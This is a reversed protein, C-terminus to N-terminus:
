AVLNHSRCPPPRGAYKAFYRLLSTLHWAMHRLSRGSARRADHVVSVAPCVAVAGGQAWGRRCLDIDECYMFFQEDFGGLAAYRERAFLMFMGAVWDVIFAPDGPNYRAAGAGARTRRHILNAFTPFARAHDEVEGNPAVVAPSVLTTRQALACEILAPFPDGLLRIDPNVVCFWEGSSRAFAQNHNAGFGLPRMNEILIAPTGDGDLNRLAHSEPINNTVIIELDAIKRIPALDALLHDVLEGQGHSVISISTRAAKGDTM